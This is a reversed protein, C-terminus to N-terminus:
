RPAKSKKRSRELEAKWVIHVYGKITLRKAPSEGLRQRITEIVSAQTSGELEGADAMERVIAWVRKNLPPPKEVTRSKGKSPSPSRQPANLAGYDDREFVVLRHYVTKGATIALQRPYDFTLTDLIEPPVIAHRETDERFGVLVCEGAALRRWFSAILAKETERLAKWTDDDVEVYPRGDRLFSQEVTSSHMRFRDIKRRTPRGAKEWTERAAAYAAIVEPSAHVLAAGVIPTGEMNRRVQVVDALPAEDLPMVLHEDRRTLKELVAPEYVHVSYYSKGDPTNVRGSKWLPKAHQWAERAIASMPADFSGERGLAILKGDHLIQKFSAIVDRWEQAAVRRLRFVDRDAISWQRPIKRATERYKALLEPDRWQEWAENLPLGGAPPDPYSPKDM